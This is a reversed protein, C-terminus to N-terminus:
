FGIIKVIKILSKSSKSSIPFLEVFITSEDKNEYESTPEPFKM